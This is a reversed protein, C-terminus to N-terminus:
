IAEIASFGVLFMKNRDETAEYRVSALRFLGKPATYDIAAGNAHTRLRPWLDITALGSGDSTVDKLVKYLSSDIQIFDGAKLVLTSNSWGSTDLENGTQNAGAVVPTGGPTGLSFGRLESGYLFTGVPGMLSSFFADWPAFEERTMPDFSAELGWAQGDHQYVQTQLSFPNESVGVVNREILKISSHEGAAPANLPYTIAM